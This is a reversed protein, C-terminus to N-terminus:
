LVQVLDALSLEAVKKTDGLRSRELLTSLTAFKFGHYYYHKTPHHLIELGRQDSLQKFEGIQMEQLPRPYLIRQDHMEDGYGFSAYIFGGDLCFEEYSVRGNNMRYRLLDFSTLLQSPLTEPAYNLHRLSNENFFLHALDIVSDVDKNIFYDGTSIGQRKLYSLFKKKQKSSKWEVLAVYYPEHHNKLKDETKKIFKQDAQETPLVSYLHELLQKSGRNELTFDKVRVIMSRQDLNLLVDKAKNKICPFFCIISAEEKRRSYELTLYDIYKESLGLKELQVLSAESVMLDKQLKVETNPNRDLILALHVMNEVIEVEGRGEKVKKMKALEQYLSLRDGNCVCHSVEELLERAWIDAIGRSEHDLYVCMALVDMREFNLLDIARLYKKENSVLHQPLGRQFPGSIGVRLALISVSIVFFALGTRLLFRKEWLNSWAKKLYKM